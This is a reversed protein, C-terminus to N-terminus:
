YDFSEDWSPMFVKGTRRDLVVIRLGVNDKAADEGHKMYEEKTIMYATAFGEKISKQVMIAVKGPYKKEFIKKANEIDIM